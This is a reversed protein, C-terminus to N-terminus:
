PIRGEALLRVTHQGVIRTLAFIGVRGYATPAGDISIIRGELMFGKSGNGSLRRHWINPNTITVTITQHRHLRYQFSLLSHWKLGNKEMWAALARRAQETFSGEAMGDGQKRIISFWDLLARFNALSPEGGRGQQDLPEPWIDKNQRFPM